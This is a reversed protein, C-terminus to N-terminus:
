GQQEVTYIINGKYSVIDFIFYKDVDLTACRPRLRPHSRGARRSRLQAGAYSHLPLARAFGRWVVLPLSLQWLTAAAFRIGAEYHPYRSQRSYAVCLWLKGQLALTARCNTYECLRLRPPKM